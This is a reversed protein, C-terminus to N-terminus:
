SNIVQNFSTRLYEIYSNKVALFLEEGVSIFQIYNLAIQSSLDVECKITGALTPTESSLNVPFLYNCYFKSETPIGTQAKIEEIREEPIDKYIPSIDYTNLSDITFLTYEELGPPPPSVSIKNDIRSIFLIEDQYNVKFGRTVLNITPKTDINQVIWYLYTIKDLKCFGNETYIAIEYGGGYYDFLTRDNMDITSDKSLRMEDAFFWGCLSIASIAANDFECLNENYKIVNNELLKETDYYGTGIIRLEEYADLKPKYIPCQNYSYEFLHVGNADKIYGIFALEDNGIWSKRTIFFKELSEKTFTETESTQKLDSLIIKAGLHSGAWGIVIDKNIINVKHTLAVVAESSNPYLQFQSIDGVTPLYLISQKGKGSLLLDGILVPINKIKFAAVLTM